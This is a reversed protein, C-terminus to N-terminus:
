VGVNRAISAGQNKQQILRIRPDNFDMVIKTGGDTSGDDVIIVEFNYFTQNLVSNLARAIHISKNYLPIVISIEPVIM